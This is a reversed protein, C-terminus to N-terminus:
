RPEFKRTRRFFLLWWSLSAALSALGVALVLGIPTRTWWLALAIMFVGRGREFPNLAWNAISIWQKEGAIREYKFPLLWVVGFAGFPGCLLATCGALVLAVGLRAHDRERRYVYTEVAILLGTGFWIWVVVSYPLVVWTPRNWYLSEPGYALMVGTVALSILLIMGVECLQPKGPKSAHERMYRAM